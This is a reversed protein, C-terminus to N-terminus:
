QNDGAIMLGRVFRHCDICAMTADVWKLAARDLNKSEAAKVLESTVQRFDTSFQKYMVDNSVRWREASSMTNLEKAGEKILDFDEVALGELIRESARLKKRMFHRLDMPADAESEAPAKVPPQATAVQWVTAGVMAVVCASVLMKFMSSM